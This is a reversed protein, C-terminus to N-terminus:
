KNSTLPNSCFLCKDVRYEYKHNIDWIIGYGLYCATCLKKKYQFAKVIPYKKKKAM